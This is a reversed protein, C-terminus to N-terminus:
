VPTNEENIALHLGYFEPITTHDWQFVLHGSYVTVFDGNAHLMDYSGADPMKGTRAGTAIMDKAFLRMEPPLILETIDKNVAEENRHGYLNVSAHNWLFIKGYANYGQVALHPNEQLMNMFSERSPFKNQAASKCVTNIISKADQFSFKSMVIGKKLRIPMLGSFSVVTLVKM